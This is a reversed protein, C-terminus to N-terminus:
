FILVVFFQTAISPDIVDGLSAIPDAGLFKQSFMEHRSKRRVGLSEDGLSLFLIPQSVYVFIKLAQALRTM